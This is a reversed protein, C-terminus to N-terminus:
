RSRSADDSRTEQALHRRKMEALAEAPDDPLPAGDESADLDAALLRRGTQRSTGARRSWRRTLLMLILLGGVVVGMIILARWVDAREGAVRSPFAGVFAAYRHPQGDRATDTIRKFFRAFIEIRQGDHWDSEQVGVVYVMVPTDDHLRVFWEVATDYPPEYRHQQILTGALLVVDGRSTDPDDIMAAIDPGYRVAIDGPFNEAQANSWSQVHEILEHFAPERFDSDDDAAELVWRQTRTLDPIGATAAPVIMALMLMCCSITRM